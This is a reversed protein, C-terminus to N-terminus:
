TLGGSVTLRALAGNLPSTLPSRIARPIAEVGLPASLFRDRGTGLVAAAAIAGSRAASEMTSPWGTDTYCGALIVGPHTTSPHHSREPSRPNIAPPRNAEAKPTPAWTARKEKVVRSRLLKPEQSGGSGPGIANGPDHQGNAKSADSSEGTSENRDRNSLTPFVCARLDALVRETAAQETLSTWDDAASIVAHVVCGAGDKRFLWQTDRGVLVAHPMTMVPRDFRLHVGLIPSPDFADLMALRPDDDRTAGGAELLAGAREVPVALVVRDAHIVEGSRLTVSRPSVAGASAGLMVRGGAREVIDAAGDYLRRLPVRPVGLTFSRRNALMGEQVIHIGVSAATREPQANAASIILPRWFKDLAGPSQGTDDLFEAFTRHRWDHRNARAAAAVAAAIETREAVTLFRAFAFGRALHLPAPLAMDARMVTIRGGPEIWWLRDSFDIQDRVGLTQCLDLFTTCCGLAVHQCNDLEEGTRPDSFSTARGGLKKRTEILTVHVGRHALHVACAIGAIGAGVVAVHQPPDGTPDHDAVRPRRQRPTPNM